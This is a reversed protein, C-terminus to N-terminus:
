GEGPVVEAPLGASVAALAAARDPPLYMREVYEHLMRTTSFRWLTSAMSRRMLALWKEPLGNTERDYYRPM